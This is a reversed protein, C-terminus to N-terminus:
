PDGRIAREVISATKEAQAQWSYRSVVAERGRAGMSQREATSSWLERVASALAGPDGPSVILGCRETRVVDVMGPLDTIIVPVSCAMSEFLKLPLLGTRGHIAANSKPILSMKSRALIGPVQEYPQRGLMVVRSNEAAAHKVLGVSPGDGVIVLSLGSPWDVHRAAALLVDIGQWEILTGVFVAYSSPLDITTSANGHFLDINAGNPVVHTERRSGTQDEVWEALGETVAITVDALKLQTRIAWRVVVALLKAMPWAVFFDEYPSNVEQVQPVGLIRCLVSTPLGVFHNRVYLVRKQRLVTWLRVQVALCMLLRRVAGYERGERYRPEFLEVDWGLKELGRLIERVHAHSAQGEKSAQFCLYALKGRM